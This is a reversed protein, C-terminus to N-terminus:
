LIFVKDNHIDHPKLTLSETKTDIILHTKLKNTMLKIIKLM